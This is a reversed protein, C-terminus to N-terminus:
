SVLPWSREAQRSLRGTLPWRDVRIIFHLGAWNQIDTCVLASLLPLLSKRVFRKFCRLVKWVRSFGAFLFFAWKLRIKAIRTKMKNEQENRCSQEKKFRTNERNRKKVGRSGSGRWTRSWSVGSCSYRWGVCRLLLGALCSAVFVRTLDIVATTATPQRRRVTRKSRM